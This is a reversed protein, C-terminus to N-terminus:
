PRGVTLDDVVRRAWYVCRTLTSLTAHPAPDAPEDRLAFTGDDLGQLYGSATHTTPHAYWSHLRYAPYLKNRVGISECLQDIKQVAKEEGAGVPESSEVLEQLLGMDWTSTTVDRPRGRTEDLLAHQLRDDEAYRSAAGADGTVSVLHAM